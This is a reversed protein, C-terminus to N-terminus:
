SVFLLLLLFFLAFQFLREILLLYTVLKLGSGLSFHSKRYSNFPKYVVTSLPFFVIHVFLFVLKKVISYSLIIFLFYMLTEILSSNNDVFMKKCVMLSIYATVRDKQHIINMPPSTYCNSEIRESNTKGRITIITRFM